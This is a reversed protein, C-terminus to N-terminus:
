KSKGKLSIIIKDKKLEVNWETNLTARLQEKLYRIRAFYKFKNSIGEFKAIRKKIANKTIM